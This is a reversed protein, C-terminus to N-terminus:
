DKTKARHLGKLQDSLILATSLRNRIGAARGQGPPLSARGISGQDRELAADRQKSKVAPPWMSLGRALDYTEKYLRADMGHLRLHTNLSGYWGGCVHCQVKTGDASFTMIGRPPLGNPQPEPKPSPRNREKWRRMYALRTERDKHPM